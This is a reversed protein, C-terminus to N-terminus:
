AQPDAGRLERRVTTSESGEIVTAGITKAYYEIPGAQGIIAYDYGEAHMAHLTCLLLGTGIGRGHYNEQVGTPGFVGRAAVDYCAFGLLLDTPRGTASDRRGVEVAIFCTVPRQELAAECGNAWATGFRERVWDCVVHKEWTNARRVQVDAVKLAALAPASDPLAYLKALLDPM